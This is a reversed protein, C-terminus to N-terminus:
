RLALRPDPEPSALRRGAEPLAIRRLFEQFRPDSRLPETWPAVAAWPLWAHHPEHDLWEFARDADGLATNIMALGFANWASVPGTELEELIRRAETERGAVALTRGLFWLGAPSVDALREHAAVAEDYRELKLYAQGLIILGALNTPELELALEAEALADEGPLDAWLYLGGLWATHLPTLPDLQKALRHQVIAEDWRRLLALYWAYHYRNMALSPNLANARRFEEEAGAWDWEYYLKVDALAAHAEALSPDLSVARNAAELARPWADPPPAPGHGLTAYGIALGAYALADAPDRDVAEHLLQIGRMLDEPSGKNLAHMGRLYAEYTAPDVPAPTALRTQEDATLDVRVERAISRAVEGHMALVNQIEADFTESWVLREEPVAQILRVQIRVSDGPRTVTSEVIADVGLAEAIEPVTADSSAFRATSRRSIVRLAGVQAVQSILAEHMGAVFHDQTPDGVADTPPLVAIALESDPPGAPGARRPGFAVAGLVGFIAVASLLAAEVRTIPQRGRSGHFWSLVIVALLGAALLMVASRVVAQGWGFLDALFGLAELIGWAAALYGLTWHFVKREVLANLGSGM